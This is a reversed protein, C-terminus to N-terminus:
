HNLEKFFNLYIKILYIKILKNYQILQLNVNQQLSNNSKNVVFKNESIKV